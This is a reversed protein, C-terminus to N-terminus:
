RVLAEEFDARLNEVGRLDPMVVAGVVIGDLLGYDLSAVFVQRWGFARRSLSRLRRFGRGRDLSLSVCVGRRIDKGGDRKEGFFPM